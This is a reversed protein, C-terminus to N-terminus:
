ENLQKLRNEVYQKYMRNALFGRILHDHSSRCDLDEYIREQPLLLLRNNRQLFYEADSETKGNEYYQIFDRNREYFRQYRREEEEWYAVEDEKQGPIFLLGQNLILYHEIYATFQPKVSKFFEIEGADDYIVRKQFCQKIRLWYNVAIRYCCEAVETEPLEMASCRAMDKLMDSHLLQYKENM